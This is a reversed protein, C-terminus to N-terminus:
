PKKLASMQRFLVNPFAVKINTARRLLDWHFDSTEFITGMHQSIRLQHFKTHSDPKALIILDIEAHPPKAEM